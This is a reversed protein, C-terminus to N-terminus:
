ASYIVRRVGDKMKNVKVNLLRGLKLKTAKLHSIEQAVHIPGRQNVTKLEVGLLDVVPIDIAGRGVRRSRHHVDVGHELGYSIGRIEREASLAARYAAENYGPGPHKHVGIAAGSVARAVTDAEGAPEDRGCCEDIECEDM